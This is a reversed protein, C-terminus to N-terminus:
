VESQPRPGDGNLKQLSQGQREPINNTNERIWYLLRAFLAWTSPPYLQEWECIFYQIYTPTLLGYLEKFQALFDEFLQSTPKYFLKRLDDM